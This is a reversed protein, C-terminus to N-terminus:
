LVSAQGRGPSQSVLFMRLSHHMVTPPCLIISPQFGVVWVEQSPGVSDQFMFMLIVIIERLSNQGVYRTSATDESATGGGATTAQRNRGTRAWGAAKPPGYPCGPSGRVGPATDSQINPLSWNVNFFCAQIKDHWDFIGHPAAAAPTCGSTKWYHTACIKTSM